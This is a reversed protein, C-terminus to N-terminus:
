YLIIYKDMALNKKIEEDSTEFLIQQKKEDWGPLASINLIALLGGESDIRDMAEISLVNEGSVLGDILIQKHEKLQVSDEETYTSIYEGNLFINYSDDLKLKLEVSVPLGQISFSKRFYVHDCNVTELLPRKTIVMEKKPTALISDTAVSDQFFGSGFLSDLGDLVNNTDVITVYTTDEAMGVTDIKTLWIMPLELTSMQASQDVFVPKSWSATNFNPNVWGASYNSSAQWSLDSHFEKKVIKLDILSCYQEPSLEVLALLVRKTWRNSIKLEGSYQYVMELLNRNNERFTFYNDEFSFFADEYEISGTEKFLREYKKKKKYIIKSLSDAQISFHYVDKFINEQTLVVTPDEIRETAALEITQKYVYVMNQTFDKSFDILTAQQDSLAVADFGESTTGGDQIVKEYCEITTLYRDFANQALKKYEDALLNNTSIIKNRSSKVWQNELGLKWAEEVNRVHEEVTAQILPEVARQLIQRHYEIESVIDLNEPVPATLLDNITSLHLEAMDYIVKSMREECRDIWRRATHLTSDKEVIKTIEVASTKSSDHNLLSQEYTNALKKLIEVSQRYSDEAKGYLEVTTENIEKKTVIRRTRDMPAIEQRAWTDAFEEYARGINYPAEYLHITGYSAIRTFRGVVDILMDRKKKRDQEMKEMPLVFEIDRFENYKIKTGRSLAEAAFYNNTELNRRKFEENKNVSKEYEAMAMELENKNEYYNGRQFFTEIVRPSDPFKEAYEGYIRNAEDFKDLNLYYTAIDYFLDDADESDPFKEVFVRNIRIADVWEEARVFFVSSNYLADHTQKADATIAALGEYTLAANKFEFLEGYDIALNNMADFKYKSQRRTEILYNYTEVARSYERALDYECAANFLSLDAFAADPVESVVRLYENGSQLHDSSDAYVKAALFISEALRRKASEIIEAPLSLDNKLRRAVIESSKYDGKGFYCELIQHKVYYGDEYDPFHKVITNFYRLAEKFMNNNFYLAGANNLIRVTKNEHPYLKIYNNYARILKKESNLFEIQNYNFASLVNNEIQKLSLADNQGFNIKKKSTDTEVADKGLAIANEAAFRQYKSEWYSDCIKMYEEFAENYFKLKTDMTLAMNWHIRPASSDGPFIKLYKKCDNVAIQYLGLDSNFEAQQFLLTINDRLARETIEYIKQRVTEDEHKMWWPSAPKYQNFLKDRSLYALRDSGLLRYCSIIKENIEPANNDDPFMKLLKSYAAIASEYEEKENMYVDGIKQLVYFGYDPTNISQLYEVASALGGHDLFSLGIYELAEDRLDPNSFAQGGDVNLTRDIDEVLITFYSVAQTYDSLRYYCWGLRYLAEDYKPSDKFELLKKFYEISVEIKNQPPNFYYEAIRMMSEPVYRSGSFEALIFQYIHLASDAAGIEELIFAKNYYADDVLNSHPFDQIIREYIALPRSFDRVPEKLSSDVGSNDIQEILQDYKQLAQLFNENSKEYYLEALRMLVRDLVKSDPNNTSFDEADKIGKDRLAIKQKEIEELQEYYYERFKIIEEISYTDLVSDIKVTKAIDSKNEQQSFGTRCIFIVVFIFCLLFAKKM